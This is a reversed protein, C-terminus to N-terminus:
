REFVVLPDGPIAGEVLQLGRPLLKAFVMDSPKWDDDDPMRDRRHLELDRERWVRVYEQQELYTLDFYVEQPSRDPLAQILMGIRTRETVYDELLVQLIKGRGASRQNRKVFSRTAKVM